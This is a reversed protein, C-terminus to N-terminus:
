FFYKIIVTNVGEPLMTPMWLSNPKSDFSKGKERLPKKM